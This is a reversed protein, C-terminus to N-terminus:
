ARIRWDTMKLQREKQGNWSNWSAEVAVDIVTGPQLEGLREGVRFGIFKGSQDGDQAVLRLHQGSTGVPAVSVVTLNSIMFVPRPNTQGYPACADILDITEGDLEALTAPLDVAVPKLARGPPVTARAYDQWWAQFTSRTELSVLTFGCAGPHGGFRRFHTAGADLASMIDFGPTSRGSGIIEDGNQTMVLVPRWVREVLRGAILGIIGPSWHPAFATYASQEGQHELQELAETFAMETLRQREGNVAQLQEALRRAQTVDKTLLVDLAISAHHLRGAANLRPAIQFSITTEDAKSVDSGMVDFLARLGPRRTKRLVVLGYKVLLRNTGTMPMMDAVTSMATLDLLWKEWGPALRHGVTAGNNTAQLLARAVTFAVGASSYYQYSRSERDFVPNIIAEAAPLKAPQHHHDLVVVQLGLAHARDIEAVSTTGCDVTILVKTGRAALEEIAAVNLGYGEALREPLYWDVQGGLASLTEVMTATATVGDVDYDGYITILRQDAVAALIVDVAARMQTFIFPDQLDQVYEPRLFNKIAEATRFGRQWLLRVILGPLEPYESVLNSPPQDALVWPRDTM